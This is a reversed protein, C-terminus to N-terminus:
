RKGKGRVEAVVETSEVAATEMPLAIPTEEAKPQVLAYVEKLKAERNEGEFLHQYTKKGMAELFEAESKHSSVFGRSLSVGDVDIHNKAKKAKGKAM